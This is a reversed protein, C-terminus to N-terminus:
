QSQWHYYSKKKKLFSPIQDKYDSAAPAQTESFADSVTLNIIFIQKLLAAKM